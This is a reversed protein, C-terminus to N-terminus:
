FDNYARVCALALEKDHMWLFLQGAFRMTNPFCLSREIKAEDMAQLRDKVNLCAPPIDAFAIPDHTVEDAPLGIAVEVKAVPVHLDEVQWFDTTPGSAAPEFGHARMNRGRRWPLHVVKPARERFKAPLRSEFLDPPEIVHDDVSIVWPVEGTIM